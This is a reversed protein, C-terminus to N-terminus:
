TNYRDNFVFRFPEWTFVIFLIHFLFVKVIPSVSPPIVFYFVPIRRFIYINTNVVLTEGITVCYNVKVSIGKLISIMTDRFRRFLEDVGPPSIRSSTM